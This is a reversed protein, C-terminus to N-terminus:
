AILQTAPSPCHRLNANRRGPTGAMSFPDIRTSSYSTATRMWLVRIGMVTGSYGSKFRRAYRKHRAFGIGELYHATIRGRVGHLVGFGSLRLIHSCLVLKVLDRIM